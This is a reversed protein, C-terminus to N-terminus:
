KAPLKATSELAESVWDIASGPDAIWDGPVYAYGRMPRGPMPEFPRGGAAMLEDLRDGALRVFLGDGFLGAFMNGNVFAARNGFMPRKSVGPADPVLADFAELARVGPKPMAGGRMASM